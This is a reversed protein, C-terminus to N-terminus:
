PTQSPLTIDRAVGDKLELVDSVRSWDIRDSLMMDSAMQKIENLSVDIKHYIDRHVEIFIRGESETLLLPVYIISGTAGRETQAFLAEIDDPHLRICGHSQFHYISAPAITGHIGISTLSLGLWFKGLPNEPGPPVETKAVQGERLMEEQISKPVRWAKNAKKDIVSFEGTPTPWSPKGLGVPYAAVLEWEHFYYLMRQPLNILLGSKLSEPVIHRNDITLIQGPMLKASYKLSNERALVEEAVGFRAGIKILYDGSQVTYKFMGGTIPLAVPEAMARPLYSMYCALIVFLIKRLDMSKNDVTLLSIPSGWAGKISLVEPQTDSLFHKGVIRVTNSSM